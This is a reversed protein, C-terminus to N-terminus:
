IPPKADSAPYGVSAPDIKFLSFLREPVVMKLQLLVRFLTELTTPYDDANLLLAPSKSVIYSYCWFRNANTVAVLNYSSIATGIVNDSTVISIRDKSNYMQCNELLSVYEKAYYARTSRIRMHHLIAVQCVFMRWTLEANQTYNQQMFTYHQQIYQITIDSLSEIHNEGLRSEITSWYCTPTPQLHALHGRVYYELPQRDEKPASELLLIIDAQKNEYIMDRAHELIHM